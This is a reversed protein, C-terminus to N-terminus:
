GGNLYFPVLPPAPETHAIPMVINLALPDPLPEELGLPPYSVPCNEKRLPIELLEQDLLLHTPGLITDLSDELTDELIYRRREVLYRPHPLPREASPGGLGTQGLAGGPAVAIHAPGSPNVPLTIHIPLTPIPLQDLRLGLLRRDLADVPSGTPLPFHQYLPTRPVDTPCPPAPLWGAKHQPPVWRWGIYHYPTQPLRTVTHTTTIFTPFQLLKEPLHDIAHLLTCPTHSIPMWLWTQPPPTKGGDQNLECSPGWAWPFTPLAVVLAGTPIYNRPVPFTPRHHPCAAPDPGPDDWGGDLLCARKGLPPM